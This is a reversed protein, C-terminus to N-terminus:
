KHAHTSVLQADLIQILREKVVSLPKRADIIQYHKPDHKARELYCRRVKRFFQQKESEIRDMRGRRRTRSLALNVPADFLLTLNPRFHGLLWRELVAIHEKAIGRGEGQYAYTTDVFRDCVVWQGKELAPMIVTQVHQARAAFFLLLETDRTIDPFQKGLVLERIKESLPTGGPERTVIFPVQKKQLYKSIFKLCTSKGVGEMGELTLFFGQKAIM